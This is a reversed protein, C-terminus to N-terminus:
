PWNASLRYTLLQLLSPLPRLVGVFHFEWWICCALSGRGLNEYPVGLELPSFLSKWHPRYVLLVGRDLQEKQGVM